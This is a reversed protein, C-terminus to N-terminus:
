TLGTGSELGYYEQRRRFAEEGGEVHYLVLQRTQFRDISGTREISGRNADAKMAIVQEADASVLVNASRTAFICQREGRRARLTRVIYNEIWPAHLADEPQDVILPFHGEAMSIMLVVTCKQGYALAELSRYTETEVAFQVEIVDELDALQLEYLDNLRDRGAITDLLRQFLVEDVGSEESPTKFDQAMLSKVLPVPHLKEAMIKIDGDAVRSGVRIERLKEYFSRDDGASQVSILVQRDLQKTLEAAKERRKATIERRAAQLDNLLLDRREELSRLKPIMETNIQREANKLDREIGRRQSLKQNLAVLGRGETDIEALLKEYDSEAGRFREDWIARIATLRERFGTLDDMLQQQSSDLAEAIEGGIEGVKQMLDTNPTQAPLDGDQVLPGALRPFRHVLDDQLTDLNKAAADLVSREKHWSEQEQVRPEEFFASLAKIDESVGPLSRLREREQDLRRQLEILETANSRLDSKAKEIAQQEQSIDLLDDLLSLRALPERAYEVIESQSFAKIPFFSSLEIPDDIVEITEGMVRSVRPPLPESSVWSREVLYRDVGKRVLVYVTSAEALGFGLLDQVGKAISPLVDRAVQQDLAFRIMELTLSKGSGTGGILCTVNDSLRIGQGGLFGSSVWLAEIFRIPSPRADDMLRVRVEPDFFAQRIGSLSVEDVKLYCHRHGIADLQHRDAGQPWCDSGQICPVRRPYGDIGGSLFDDRHKSDAIEFACIRRDAYIRQRRIGSRGAMMGWFGKEREVHAAIAIGGEQEVMAALSTIDRDSIANLNGFDRERIGAQILFEKMESSAKDRDFIALLHGESTSVEVGPFVHLRTDRAAERVPDCWEVSNHDTIAIIELGKDIALRVLDDPKASQWKDSMDTSAPTHVHLDTRKFVAGVGQALVEAIERM